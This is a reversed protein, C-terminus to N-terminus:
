LLPISRRGGDGFATLHLRNNPPAFTEFVIQNPLLRSCVYISMYPPSTKKYNPREYDVRGNFVMFEFPNTSFMSYRKKSDFIGAMNVLMAFPKGLAFLREFVAERKSFPPNSVIVDYSTPHPTFDFFDKGESIHSHIVKYGENAEFVKVFNSEATDFPCWVVSGYPIYKVLPVIAYPKTYYEDNQNFLYQHNTM